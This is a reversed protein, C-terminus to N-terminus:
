LDHDAKEDTEREAAMRSEDPPGLRRLQKEVRAIRAEIPAVSLDITEQFVDELESLSMAKESIQKPKSSGGQSRKWKQHDLIMKVLILVFSFVILPIFIDEDMRLTANSSYKDNPFRM